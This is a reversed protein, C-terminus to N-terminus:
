PMYLRMSWPQNWFSAFPASALPASSPMLTTVRSLWNSGLTIDAFRSLAMASFALPMMMTTGSWFSPGPTMSLALAAPMGSM